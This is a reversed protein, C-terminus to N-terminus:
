ALIGCKIIIAKFYTKFKSLIFVIVKNKKLIVQGDENRQIEM